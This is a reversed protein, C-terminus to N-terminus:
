LRVAWSVPWSFVPICGESPEDTVPRSMIEGATSSNPSMSSPVQEQLKIFVRM